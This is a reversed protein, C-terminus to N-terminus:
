GHPRAVRAELVRQVREPIASLFDYGSAREIADVSTVFEEWSHRGVGLENPMLVAIVETNEEIDPLGQQDDLIVVIKYSAAPVSVGHGITPFPERFVGGAVIYLLAGHEAREREYQELREWPGANLEHLQPQLNTFVFTTANDDSSDERDASPCLHGRDYGSHRYDSAGVRYLGAPLAPDSRFARTRKRHGLYSRDLRWAAWNPVRRVPNYSVVFSREDLLRDDSADSDTPIGLALHVNEAFGRPPSRRTPRRAVGDTQPARRDAGSEPPVASRLATGSGACALLLFRALLLLSVTCLFTRWLSGRQAQRARKVTM